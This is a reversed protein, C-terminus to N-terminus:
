STRLLLERLVEKVGNGSEGHTIRDAGPWLSEPANRVLIGEGAQELMDMDGESDGLAVTRALPVGLLDAVLRLAQGKSAEPHLFEVLHPLTRLVTLRDTYLAAARRGFERARSISEEDRDFRIVIVVPEHNAKRIWDALNGVYEFSVELIRSYRESEKAREEAYIRGGVHAYRLAPVDRTMALVDLAIDTTLKQQWFVHQGGPDSVFAGSNTILPLTLGLMRAYHEAAAFVRGTALTFGIGKKSAQQVLEIIEPDFHKDPGILTNDLDCVVLWELRPFDGPSL